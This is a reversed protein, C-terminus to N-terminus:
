APLTDDEGIATFSAGISSCDARAGLLLTDLQQMRRVDSTGAGASIKERIKDHVSRRVRPQLVVVHREMNSGAQGLAALVGERNAQREGNLWVADKLTGTSNAKLKELLLGRDVHRLNKVAQGVVVEYDAVSVGRNARDSHSGKVHILTLQPPEQSDDFHIFDASEMSGDDCVLWGTAPGRDKINPWHRAVFGFLSLDEARGVDEVAFRKDDLPKERQVVIGEESMNVWDWGPFPFDRFNTRYFQGRAYTHGTDFYISLYDPRCCLDLVAQQHEADGIKELIESTLAVSGSERVDFTYGLRGLKEDDWFVEAEFGPPQTSEAVKFRAADCFQQLALAEEDGAAIEALNLEPVIVAMDYPDKVGDLGDVPRALIPIPPRQPLKGGTKDAAHDLIKEVCTAFEGWSRTPGLWIRAQRPSAGVIAAQGAPALDKNSSTSRVSSYYFSQDELPDLASELELGSLVKSDAKIPTRRHAGGLWLTRLGSEVFAAETEAASLPKLRNLPAAEASRIARVATNRAAPDSFCIAVLDAKRFIYVAQHTRDELNAGPCWSPSRREEYHFWSVDLGDPLGKPAAPMKFDRSSVRSNPAAAALKLVKRM